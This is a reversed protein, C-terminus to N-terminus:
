AADKKVSSAKTSDAGLPGGLLPLPSGAGEPQSGEEYYVEPNGGLIVQGDKALYTVTDSFTTNKGQEVVVNGFCIIKEVYRHNDDYYVDMVDASLRGRQDTVVVNKQFRAKNRHYDANMPGDCTIVTPVHSTESEIVVTVNRNLSMTKMQSDGHAGKGELKMYDKKIEAVDETKMTQKSPDIDLSETRLRGGDDATAVVNNELHVISTTKDFVGDDATITVPVKETYAKAMVNDLDVRKAFIDASDGEIELEKEGKDTYKVFSFSYVKNLLESAKSAPANDSSIGVNFWVLRAVLFGVYCVLLVIAIVIFRKLM